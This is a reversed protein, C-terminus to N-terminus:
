SDGHVGEPKLTPAAGDDRSSVRTVAKVGPTTGPGRGHPDRRRPPQEGDHSYPHRRAPFVPSTPPLPIFTSFKAELFVALPGIFV